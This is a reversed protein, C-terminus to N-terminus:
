LFLMREEYRRTSYHIKGIKGFNQTEVPPKFYVSLELFKVFIIHIGLCSFIMLNKSSRPTWFYKKWNQCNNYVPHKM